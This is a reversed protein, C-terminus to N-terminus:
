LFCKGEGRYTPVVEVVDARGASDREILAVSESRECVEGSKTHRFWVRDGVTLSRAASGRLPTQVEGAAETGIFQLGAPWVPKPLRDPGPPGSAIWGGGACTVIEDDPRRLVDLGFSLAPAPRFHRYTDFLHGGFFGSGAAIDTIARDKATEELSGTGGANVFELDAVERLAAIAKGRRRRLELMSVAQMTQVATNTLLKGAVENGVGAVQAEYSMAGVLRFGDRAVVTRALSRAQEVTHVPSRRVGVHVHGAAARLSADLDIAIRVEPRRGAAAVDDVIDLQAPDDILLTVRECATEDALLRELAGRRVTPYGLLVDTIGSETALWHAEAVDYALVGAFGDRGLVDDIVSRVRLSKSAVRIPVGGARARLDAINHELAGLDLALVPSDLGARRVADDIGGWYDAPDTVYPSRTPPM